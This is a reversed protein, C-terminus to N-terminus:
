IFSELYRQEVAREFAGTLNAGTAQMRVEVPKVKRVILTTGAPKEIETEYGNESLVGSLRRIEDRHLSEDTGNNKWTVTAYEPDLHEIAFGSSGGAEWASAHRRITLRLLRSDMPEYYNMKVIGGRDTGM